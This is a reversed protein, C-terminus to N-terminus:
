SLPPKTRTGLGACYRSGSSPSHTMSVPGVRIRGTCAARASHGAPSVTFRRPVGQYDPSTPPGPLGPHPNGPGARPPIRGVHLREGMVGTQHHTACPQVSHRCGTQDRSSQAGSFGKLTKLREAPVTALGPKEHNFAVAREAWVCLNIHVYDKGVTFLEFKLSAGRGEVGGGGDARPQRLVGQGGGCVAFQDVQHRGQGVSCVDGQDRLLVRRVGRRQEPVRQPVDHTLRDALVVPAFPVARVGDLAAHPGTDLVAPVLVEVQRFGQLFLVERLDLLDHPVDDRAAQVERPALDALGLAERLERM